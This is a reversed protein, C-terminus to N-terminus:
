GTYIPNEREWHCWWTKKEKDLLKILDSVTVKSM